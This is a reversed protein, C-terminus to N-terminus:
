TGETLRCVACGLAFEEYGNTPHRLPCTRKGSCAPLDSFKKKTVFDSREQM